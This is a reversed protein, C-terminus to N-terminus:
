KGGSKVTQLRSELEKAVKDKKNDKFFVIAQEHMQVFFKNLDQGRKPPINKLLAQYQLGMFDVGGKYKDSVEKLKDVMKPVYRGEAPFKQITAALGKAALAWKEDEALFDAWKLRAECALDPREAKEYLLILREFFSNRAAKNPQMLILDNAIKWTFDPYKAFTKLMSELHLLVTQKVEADVEGEKVQRALEIWAAENFPSLALCRDLFLIKKKQDLERAECIETYYKMGLEAQRKGVRDNAVASLRREMDRDLIQQGTHPDILTGTYYNDGLYRGHSELSFNIKGGTVASRVEVWMVWAHLGQFQSEGQVYVAPVGISKGVRAAFDGQMACVGGNKLISELTYPKDNLKCIQSQTRLMEEDYVIEQYVKGIMPRKALYNKVTWKREDIPTRHNVIHILFEWPFVQLRNIPEKGQIEKQREILDQFSDTATLSLYSEPLKSRTRSQHGRYDYLGRPDDWVVAHAIALNSFKAVNEPSKKWLAHFIKLAEPVKDFKEDIATYFEEKIEKHKEFWASIADFDDGFASAIETKFKEEFMKSCHGRVTKYSEKNFLLGTKSMEALDQIPQPVPDNKAVIRPLILLLVALAPVARSLLM